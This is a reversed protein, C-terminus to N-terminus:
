CHITIMNLLTVTKSYKQSFVHLRLLM